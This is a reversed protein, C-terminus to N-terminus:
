HKKSRRGPTVTSVVPSSAASSAASHRDHAPSDSAFRPGPLMTSSPESEVISDTGAVEIGPLVDSIDVVDTLDPPDITLGDNRERRLVVFSASIMIVAAIAIITALLM